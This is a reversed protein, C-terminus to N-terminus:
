ASFESFRATSRQSAKARHWEEIRKHIETFVGVVADALRSAEVLSNPGCNTGWKTGLKEGLKEGLKPGLKDWTLSMESYLNM